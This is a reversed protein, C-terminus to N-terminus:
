FIYLGKPNKRINLESTSNQKVNVAIESKYHICDCIILNVVPCTLVEQLWISLMKETMHSTFEYLIQINIHINVRTDWYNETSYICEAHSNWPCCITLHLQGTYLSHLWLICVEWYVNLIVAIVFYVSGVMCQSHCCDCFIRWYVNLIFICDYM